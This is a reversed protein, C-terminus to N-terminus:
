VAEGRLLRPLEGEAGSAERVFFRKLAPSRAVLALGADRVVRLAPNDSSFLRTFGDAALAVAMADFRRWSAYRELVLLSGVDEGLRRAEIVTEALAAVDKLGLNLGQGAIPHIAHAADGVLAFREAVLRDSIQLGLPFAQRGGLLRPRGLTEGFRRHLYAEFAAPPATALAEAVAARETWVLSARDDTLPLIALPGTPLFIEHAVGGHPRELAVMAVLGHQRYSWGSVGAGMATRVISRRGEAGVVLPARLTAGDKLSVEALPGKLSVAAVPRDYFLAADADSLAAALAAHIHRSEVMHGLSVEGDGALDTQDFQLFGSRGKFPAASPAHADTVAISTIKQAFPLIAAELGLVRWQNMSASAIAYARHAAGEQSAPGADALAVRLGARALALTLTAGTVGGGVVVVEFSTDLGEMRRKQM